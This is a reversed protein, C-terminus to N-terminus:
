KLYNVPYFTYVHNGQSQFPCYFAYHCIRDKVRDFTGNSQKQKGAKYPMLWLTGKPKKWLINCFLQVFMTALRIYRSEPSCIMLMNLNPSSFNKLIKNLCESHFSIEEKYFLPDRKETQEKSKYIKSPWTVLSFSFQTLDM